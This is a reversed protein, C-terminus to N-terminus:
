PMYYALGARLMLGSYDTETNPLTPDGFHQSASKGDFKTDTIKAVRYGVTGTIALSASVKWEGM